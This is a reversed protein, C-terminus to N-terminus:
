LLCFWNKKSNKKKREEINTYYSFCNCCKCHITMCGTLVNPSVFLPPLEVCRMVHHLLHWPLWHAAYTSARLTTEFSHKRQWTPDAHYISCHLHLVSAKDRGLLPKTSHSCSEHETCAGSTLICLTDLSCLFPAPRPTCM